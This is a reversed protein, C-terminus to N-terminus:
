EESPTGHNLAKLYPDAPDNLVGNDLAVGSTANLAKIFTRVEAFDWRVLNGILEPKPLRGQRVYADITARSCDLRYALTEASVYDPPYVRSEDGQRQMINRLRTTLALSLIGLKAMQESDHAGCDADSGRM